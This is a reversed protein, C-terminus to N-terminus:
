AVVYVAIFNMVISLPAVEALIVLICALETVIAMTFKLLVVFFANSPTKFVYSHNLCFKMMKLCDAAIEANQCHLITACIFQCFLSINLFNM